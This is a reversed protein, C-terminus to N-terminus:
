NAVNVPLYKTLFAETEKYIDEIDQTYYFASHGTEKLTIFTATKNADELAEFMMESQEYPVVEDDDGHILMIPIKIKNAHLAPSRQRLMAMDKEPDGISNKIYTRLEESEFVDLDYDIQEPLHTVGNISIACQYLDPTKVAGMLAAYGGYSLGVICVRNKDVVKENVLFQVIDELDEQMKGGWEKYGSKEFDKGYGTSGRFNPKVVIYGRTSIFQAYEDYGMFDRSQPGGHPLVVLPMPNVGDYSAPIMIYSNILTNDRAAYQIKVGQSLQQKPLSAYPYNLTKMQDDALDYTFYTIPNDMGSSIVVARSNDKAWNVFAFNEGKFYKAAADYKKQREEDFYRSRYIDTLVTYGIVESNIGRTIVGVIDTNPVSVLVSKKGDAITILEHFGTDPNEKRYVLKEDKIGVLDEIDIKNKSEDDEDFYFREVSEWSEDDTYEFIEVMRAIRKYDYRFLVKGDDDNVYAVTRKGGTVVLESEGNNVNVKFLALRENRVSTMLIHDKDNPLYHPIRSLNVNRKASREDNMLEVLNEGNIDTSVVRGSCLTIM